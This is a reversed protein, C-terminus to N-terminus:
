DPLRQEIVGMALRALLLDHIGGFAGNSMVVVTDGPVATTTIREIIADVGSPTEAAGGHARIAAAVAAVDLREAEPIEPRGVPALLVVDAADFARGYEAEHLKRSATSSRPEFVAFLRGQPHKGRLARLTEHVATPHHAFDDYVRVGAATGRLEQRRRVGRFHPLARALDRVAVGAGEAALAFAGLTNAVNHLGALPSLVRGCSSGGFYLDFPQSGGEPPAPAALWEPTVDGTDQGALAYHRV